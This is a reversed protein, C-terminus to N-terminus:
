ALNGSRWFADYDSDLLLQAAHSRLTDVEAQTMLPHDGLTIFVSPFMQTENKVVPITVTMSKKSKSWVGSNADYKPAVSKATVTERTTVDSNSADSLHVGNAIQVGDPTFSKSTGGTFSATAGNLISGNLLGM